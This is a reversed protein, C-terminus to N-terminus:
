PQLGECPLTTDHDDLGPPLLAMVVEPTGQSTVRTGLLTDARIGFIEIDSGFDLSGLYAGSWAFADWIGSGYGETRFTSLIRQDMRALARPRQALLAGNPTLHIRGVAHGREPPAMQSRVDDPVGGQAMSRAVLTYLAEVDRPGPVEGVAGWSIRRVLRRGCRFEVEARSMRAIALAGGPAASWIWHDALIPSRPDEDTAGQNTSPVVVLTDLRTGELTRLGIYEQGGREIRVALTDGGLAQWEPVYQQSVDFPWTKKLRGEPGFWALSQNGIDPVLIGGDPTPLAAVTLSGSFEGPGKGPGGVTRLFGGDADFVRIEAAHRDLVLLNGSAARDVDGPDGFVLPEPGEAVGLRLVIEPQLSAKGYASLDPHAVLEV